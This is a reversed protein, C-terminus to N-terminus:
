GSRNTTEKAQRQAVHLIQIEQAQASGNEKTNKILLKYTDFVGFIM